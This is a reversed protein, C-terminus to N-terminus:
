ILPWRPNDKCYEIVEQTFPGFFPRGAYQAFQITQHRLNVEILRWRGAQDLCFDFSVIRTLYVDQALRKALRKLQEFNPVVERKTLDMGSDPHRIFKLGHTDVAYRNLRGEEDIFRGLGGQTMNDLSGTRGFRVLVSMLHIDNTVVSKYTSLRLTNLGYDNFRRFFQHQEIKRQVLFNQRNAMLSELAQRNEPFHVARGGSSMSPKMVVPYEMRDVTEAVAASDLLQYEGSYFQGDINHLFAEPLLDGAFWRNCFSKNALFLSVDYRNLAAEIESEYVEEPVMRPDAVGSINYCIRLTDLSVDPRLQRWLKLHERETAKPCPRAYEPRLRFVERHWRDWEVRTLYRVRRRLFCRKLKACVVRAVDHM